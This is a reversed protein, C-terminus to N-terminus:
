RAAAGSIAVERDNCPHNTVFRAGYWHDPKVLIVAEFLKFRVAFVQKGTIILEFVATIAEYGGFDGLYGLHARGASRAGNVHSVACKM